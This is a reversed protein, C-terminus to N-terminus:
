PCGWSDGFKEKLNISQKSYFHQSDWSSLSIQWVLNYRLISHTKAKKSFNFCFGNAFNTDFKMM